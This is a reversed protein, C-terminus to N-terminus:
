VIKILRTDIILLTNPGIKNGAGRKGWALESSIYFHYRSGVGMMFLGERYGEIAEKMTFSLPDSRKYTDDIITGDILSIRQHVTVTNNITPKTEDSSELVLYQLGSNTTIIGQKHRNKKLFESSNKRNFGSSGKSKPRKNARAM